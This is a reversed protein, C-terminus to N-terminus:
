LQRHRYPWLNRSLEINNGSWDVPRDAGGEKHHSLLLGHLRAFERSVRRDLERVFGICLTELYGVRIARTEVAQHADKRNNYLVDVAIRITRAKTRTYTTIRALIADLHSRVVADCATNCITSDENYIRSRLRHVINRVSNLLQRRRDM